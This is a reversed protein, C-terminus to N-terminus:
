WSIPRTLALLAPEVWCPRTPLGAQKWLKEWQWNGATKDLARYGVQHALPHGARPKQPRSNEQHVYLYISMAKGSLYATYRANSHSKCPVLVLVALVKTLMVNAKFSGNENEIIGVGNRSSIVVGALLLTPYGDSGYSRSRDKQNDMGEIFVVILFDNADDRGAGGLGVFPSGIFLSV